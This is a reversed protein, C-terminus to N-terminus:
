VTRPKFLTLILDNRRSAFNTPGNKRKRAPPTKIKTCEASGFQRNPAIM